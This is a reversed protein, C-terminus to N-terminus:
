LSWGVHASLSLPGLLCATETLPGQLRDRYATGTSLGRLHDQLHDQLHDRYVTGTSLGKLHDRYTTGTPPGQLRDRYATGTPPGQLHGRYITGTPLGQLCDRYTTRTTTTYMIHIICKKRFPTNQGEDDTQVHLYGSSGSEQSHVEFHLSMM